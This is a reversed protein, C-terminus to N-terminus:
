GNSLLITTIGKLSPCPSKSVSWGEGVERLDGKGNGLPTNEKGKILPYPSKPSNLYPNEVFLRDLMRGM